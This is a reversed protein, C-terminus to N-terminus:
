AALGHKETLERRVDAVLADIIPQRKTSKIDLGRTYAIWRLSDIKASKWLPLYHAVEAEILANTQEAQQKRLTDKKTDGPGIPLTFDTHKPKMAANHEAAIAAIKEVETVPVGVEAAVKQVKNSASSETVAEKETMETLWQAFEIDSTTARVGPILALAQDYTETDKGGLFTYGKEPSFVAVTYHVTNAFKGRIETIKAITTTAEEVVSESVAEKVQEKSEKIGKIYEEIEKLSKFSVSGITYVGNAKVGSFEGLGLAKLNKAIRQKQPSMTTTM